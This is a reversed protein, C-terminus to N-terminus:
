GGHCYKEIEEETLARNYVYVEDITGCAYHKGREGSGILFADAIDPLRAPVGNLSGFVQRGNVFVRAFGNDITMAYHYWENLQFTHSPVEVDTHSGPDYLPHLKPSVLLRYTCCEASSVIGDYEAHDTLRFWAMITMQNTSSFEYHGSVQVYSSRGNLRLGEGDKGEGWEAGFVTSTHGQGSEDNADGNLPLYLLLGDHSAGGAQPSASAQGREKTRLHVDTITTKGAVVAIRVRAEPHGYKAVIVVYHGVLVDAITFSGNEDTTVASTPPDTCVSALPIATGDRSDIARGSIIGTPPVPEPPTEVPVRGAFRHCALQCLLLLVIWPRNM